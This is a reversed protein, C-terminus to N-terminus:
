QTRSRCSSVRAYGGNQYQWGNCISRAVNTWIRDNQRARCQRLQGPKVPRKKPRTKRLSGDIKPTSTATSAIATRGPGMRAATVM